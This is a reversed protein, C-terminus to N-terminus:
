WSHDHRLALTGPRQPLVFFLERLQPPVKSMEAFRSASVRRSFMTAIDDIRRGAWATRMCIALAMLRTTCILRMRSPTRRMVIFALTLKQRPLSPPCDVQGTECGAGRSM